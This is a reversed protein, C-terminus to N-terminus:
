QGLLAATMVALDEGNVFGDSNLDALCLGLGVPNLVEAFFAPLDAATVAGDGDFDGALAVDDQTFEDVGMDVRCSQVRAEGDLDAAGDDVVFAPDGGDICPSDAALHYDGPVFVDDTLDAPTGNDDWHGPDVFRPDLSINGALANPVGGPTFNYQLNQINCYTATTAQSVQSQHGDGNADRNNYVISNTLQAGTVGATLGTAFNGVITCGVVAAGTANIAGGSECSNGVVLCNIVTGNWMQIAGGTRPSINNIFRCDRIPGITDPNAESLVRISTGVNELFECREISGRILATTEVIRTQTDNNTFTCDTLHSDSGGLQFLPGAAENQDFVCDRVLAGFAMVVLTGPAHNQIFTTRELTGYNILVLLSSSNDEFHCDSISFRTGYACTDTNRRFTCFSIAMGDGRLLKKSSNDHFSCGIAQFCADEVNCDSPRGAHGYYLTSGGHNSFDCDIVVPWVSLGWISIASGSLSAANSDFRCSDFTPASAGQSYVAGGREAQNENLLCHRITPASEISTVGGGHGGVGLGNTMTVGDLVSDAGEGSVFSVVSGAANGDIITAEVIGPDAPNASQVRIAKGLFDINEFWRGEPTCDNPLIVVIDGDEAADIASQITAYGYAGNCEVLLVNGGGGRVGGEGAIRRLDAGTLTLGGGTWAGTATAGDIPQANAIPAFSLWGV